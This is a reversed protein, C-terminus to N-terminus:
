CEGRYRSHPKSLNNWVKVLERSYEKGYESLYYYAEELRIVEMPHSGLKRWRPAKEFLHSTTENKLLFINMGFTVFQVDKYSRLIFTSSWEEKLSHPPQEIYSILSRVEAYTIDELRNVKFKKM